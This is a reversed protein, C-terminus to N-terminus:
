VTYHKDVAGPPNDAMRFNILEFARTAGGGFHCSKEPSTQAM